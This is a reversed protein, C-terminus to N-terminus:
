KDVELMALLRQAEERIQVLWKIPDFVDTHNHAALANIRKLGEVVEALDALPIVPVTYYTSRTEVLINEPVWKVVSM